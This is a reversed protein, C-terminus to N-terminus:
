GKVGSSVISNVFYKQGIVFIIFLPLVSIVGAAFAPGYQTLEQGIFYAIGNSLMRNRPSSIILLPWLLDNWNFNFTLVVQTIIAPGCLPLMIRVYIGFERLGDIRGAEELQKPLTIFYARMFFIGFVAALRPIVLGAFTDILGLYHIEMFLPIMIVQFPIMMSAMLITFLVNKGKFRIRAFAYGAMSNFLASGVTVFSSFILTNIFYRVIPILRIVETFNKFTWEQPFFNPPYVHMQHAPRFASFFMWGVPLVILVVMFLQLAMSPISFFIKKFKHINM